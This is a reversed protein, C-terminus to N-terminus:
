AASRPPAATAVPLPPLRYGALTPLVEDALSLDQQRTLLNPVAVVYLGAAKAAEVGPQSDEFALSGHAAAGLDALAGLYVDPSPKPRAVTDRTRVVAFRERLGLRSLGAGVWAADSNSAVGLQYGLRAGQEILEAVGPLLPLGAAYNRARAHRAPELAPWDLPRGLRKELHARPDFGNVYGVAALWDAVELREGQREYLEQWSVFEAMETDAMLGDFDLILAPQHM